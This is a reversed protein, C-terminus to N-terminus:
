NLLNNLKIFKDNLEKTDKEFLDLENNIFEYNHLFALQRTVNYYADFADTYKKFNLEQCSERKMYFSLQILKYLEKWLYKQEDILKDKGMKLINNGHFYNNSKFINSVFLYYFHDDMNKFTIENQQCDIMYQYYGIARNDIYIYSSIAIPLLYLLAKIKNFM